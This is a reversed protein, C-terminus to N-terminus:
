EIPVPTRERSTFRGPHSTSWESGDLAVIYLGNGGHAKVAHLTIVLKPIYLLLVIFRLRYYGCSTV